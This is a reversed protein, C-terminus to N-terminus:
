LSSLAFVRNFRNETVQVSADVPSLKILVIDESREGTEELYLSGLSTSYRRGLFKNAFSQTNSKEFFTPTEILTENLM